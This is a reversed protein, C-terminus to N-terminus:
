ALVKKILADDIEPLTGFFAEFAPRAQHLLMGIGTVTKLGRRKADKLLETDLPNYVIDCVIATEPLPRLDVELPPQGKMGLSTTNIVLSANEFLDPVAEWVKAKAPPFAEALARATAFTRNVIIIDRVGMDILAYVVGRAAGGAGLVVVSSSSPKFNPARNKLNEAFGFHDTNRGEMKGDDGIIVTNVAGIREADARLYDMYSIVSQKHPVTVNFGCYGDDILRQIGSELDEAKIAVADYAGELGYKELWHSHILPSKTHQIPWGIVAAKRM